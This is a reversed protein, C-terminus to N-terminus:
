LCQETSGAARSSRVSRVSLVMRTTIYTACWCVSHCAAARDALQYTVSGRAHGENAPRDEVLDDERSASMDIHMHM